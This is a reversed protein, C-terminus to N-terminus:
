KQDNHWKITIQKGKSPVDLSLYVIFVTPDHLCSHYFGQGIINYTM